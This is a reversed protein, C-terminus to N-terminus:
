HGHGGPMLFMMLGMMGICLVAFLVAASGAAGTLVLLAVVLVMPICCAIMMLRHRAHGTQEETPTGDTPPATRQLADPQSADTSEGPRVNLPDQSSAGQPLNTSM